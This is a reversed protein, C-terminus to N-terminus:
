RIAGNQMSFYVVDNDIPDVQTICGDGGDWADIWLYKWKENFSNDWEESPGYVTADDQTGGYINYPTKNDIEIDYFEGTPLNNYHLWSNGKDYSVFLGGDNGLAIHNPNLPNIWLECHDLHLGKAQSPNIRKVLGKLNNFSKGGDNSSDRICM